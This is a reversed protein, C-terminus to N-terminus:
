NSLAILKKTLKQIEKMAKSFSTSLLLSGGTLDARHVAPDYQIFGLVPIKNKKAYSRIVEKEEQDLIKNGVLFVNKIKLQLSLRNIWLATELAKMNPEVVIVMADVYQATGRGLHETGAEMDVVVVEGRNVFLHRFLRKILYNANCMCGKGAERVVGMVLLKAGSPTNVGYKGIIDDVTFNLKMIPTKYSQNYSTKEVILDSNESIPVIGEIDDHSLGLTQALNANPDADVALVEYGLNYFFYTFMGSIFTKGVGGKGSIAIKM